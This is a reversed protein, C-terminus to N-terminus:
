RKVYKKIMVGIYTKWYKFDFIWYLIGKKFYTLAENIYGKIYLFYGINWFYIMSLRRYLFKREWFTLESKLSKLSNILNLCVKVSKDVSDKNAATLNDNHVRYLVHIDDFYAFIFGKKLAHIVFIQDEGINFREDLRLNKFVTHRIVSNQFGSRLGDILACKIVNKDKIVYLNGRKKTRLKRVARPRGDPEYFHNPNLIKGTEFEIIKSAGFVWDIDPYLDLVNVCKKLHHPLWIDDSDCFAIYFGTAYELGKNRAAAPGKNKQYVYEVKNDSKKRFDEVIERTNDTSGDDVVILEWDRFEQRAISSLVEPLFRARNYTPLVISVKTM